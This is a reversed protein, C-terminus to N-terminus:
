LTQSHQLSGSLSTCFMNVDIPNSQTGSVPSEEEDSEKVLPTPKRRRKRAPEDSDSDLSPTNKAKPRKLQQSTVDMGKHSADSVPVETEQETFVEGAKDSCVPGSAETEQETFVEEAEDCHDECVQMAGSHEMSGSGQPFALEMFVDEDDM